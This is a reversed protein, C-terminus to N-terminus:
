FSISVEPGQTVKGQDDYLHVQLGVVTYVLASRPIKLELYRDSSRGSFGNAITRSKKAVWDDFVLNFSKQESRNYYAILAGDRRGMADVSNYFVLNYKYKGVRGDTTELLCYVYQEDSALYLGSVNGVNGKSWAGPSMAEFLAAVGIWDDAKGDIRPTLRSLAIPSSTPSPRVPELRMPGSLFKISREFVTKGGAVVKVMHPGVAYEVPGFPVIGAKKDDVYVTSGDPFGGSPASVASMTDSLNVTLGRSEGVALMVVALDKPEYVSGDPARYYDSALRYEGSPLDRMTLPLVGVDMGNARIPLGSPEGSLALSASGYVLEKFVTASGAGIALTVEESAPELGRLSFGLRYDGPELPGRWPTEGLAKGDITVTAGSPDSDVSLVVPLPTLEAVLELFAGDRGEVAESWPEYAPHSVVVERRGPRLAAFRATAAQAPSGDVSAVAGPVDCRVSLSFGGAAPALLAKRGHIAALSFSVGPVRASREAAEVAAYARAALGKRGYVSALALHLGPVQRGAAEADAIAAVLSAEAEDLRGESVLADVARELGEADDDTEAALAARVLAEVGTGPDRAASAATGGIAGPAPVVPVDAIAPTAPLTDPPRGERSCGLLSGLAIMSVAVLAIGSGFRSRRAM